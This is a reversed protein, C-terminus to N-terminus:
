VIAIYTYFPVCLKSEQMAMKKACLIIKQSRLYNKSLWSFSVIGNTKLFSSSWLLNFKSNQNWANGVLSRNSLLATLYMCWKVPNLMPCHITCRKGFFYSSFIYLSVSASPSQYTLWVSLWFFGFKIKNM